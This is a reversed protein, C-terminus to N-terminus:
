CCSGAIRRAGKEREKKRQNVWDWEGHNDTARQYGDGHGAPRENEKGGQGGGGRKRKPEGGVKNAM